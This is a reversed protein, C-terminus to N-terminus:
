ACTPAVLPFSSYFIKFLCPSVLPPYLLPSSPLSRSESYQELFFPPPAQLLPIFLPISLPLSPPPFVTIHM